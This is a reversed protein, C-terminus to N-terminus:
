PMCQKMYANDPTADFGEPLYAAPIYEKYEIDYCYNCFILEVYTVSYAKGPTAIAYVFGQYDDAAMALPNNEDAFGTVGYYGQYQSVGLEALRAVEAAYEEPSYEVTLYSLFQKDWPDYYVMKYEQVQALLDPTLEAPFIREDMGWKNRYQEGAQEGMYEAYHAPDTDVEVKASASILMMLATVGGAFLLRSVFFACVVAATIAAVKRGHRRKSKKEYKAFEKATDLRFQVDPEQQTMASLADRCAECSALHNETLARTEASVMNEAYLPLLDRIVACPLKM